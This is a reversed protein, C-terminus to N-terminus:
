WDEVMCDKYRFLFCSIDIDVDTSPRHAGACDSLTNLTSSLSPPAKPHCHGQNVASYSSLCDFYRNGDVDWVFVGKGKSLM